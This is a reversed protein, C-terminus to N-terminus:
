ISLISFDSSLWNYLLLKNELLDRSQTRLKVLEAVQLAACLAPSIVPNGPAPLTCPEAPYLKSLSHCGPLVTTVQVQSNGIAGHIMPINLKCCAEQLLLRTEINDLADIVCDSGALIQAANASDVFSAFSKVEVAANIEEIRKRGSQAKSKGIGAETCLLQRNLNSEDFIDGDALTIRGVGLRACYELIFGGLGGCGVICIATKLLSLQGDLGFLRVNGIYRYPVIGNELLMIQTQRLSNGSKLSISRIHEAKITKFENVTEVFQLYFEKEM